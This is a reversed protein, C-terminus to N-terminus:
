VSIEKKKGMFVKIGAKESAILDNFSVKGIYKGRKILVVSTLTPQATLGRTLLKIYSRVTGHRKHRTGGM